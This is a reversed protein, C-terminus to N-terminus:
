HTHHTRSGQFAGQSFGPWHILAPLLAKLTRLNAQPAFAVKFILVTSLTLSFRSKSRSVSFRAEHSLVGAVCVQCYGIMEKHMIGNM